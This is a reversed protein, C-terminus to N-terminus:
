LEGAVAGEVVVAEQANPLGIVAVGTPIRVDGAKFCAFVALKSLYPCSKFIGTMIFDDVVTVFSLDIDRLCPYQKLGDFVESLAEHSIHRCSSLNLREVRSGSHIMLAKFAEAGFGKASDSPGEPNFNDIDRNKSLDIFSIPLNSWQTFLKAFGRDTCIANGTFRLKELKQCHLHIAELVDDEAEIFDELSLTRLLSGRTEILAAIRESSAEQGIALSLHELHQIKSISVLSLDSTKSCQRLKLRRLKVCQVAMMEILNDDLSDNLESLKLSELHPGQEQFLEHWASDSILNTAGLQLHKIKPNKEIM